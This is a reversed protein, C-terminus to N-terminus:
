KENDLSLIMLIAYIILGAILLVSTNLEFFILYVNAFLAMFLFEWGAVEHGPVSNTQVERDASSLTSLIKKFFIAVVGIMSILVVVIVFNFDHFILAILANMSFLVLSFWKRRKYEMGKIKTNINM